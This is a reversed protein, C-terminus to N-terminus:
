KVSHFIESIVKLICGIQKTIAENKLNLAFLPTLLGPLLALTLKITTFMM